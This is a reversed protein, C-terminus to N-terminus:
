ISKESPTKLLIYQIEAKNHHFQNLHTLISFAPLPTEKPTAATNKAANYLAKIIYFM